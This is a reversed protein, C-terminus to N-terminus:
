ESKLLDQMHKWEEISTAESHDISQRVLASLTSAGLEYFEHSYDALRLLTQYWQVSSSLQKIMQEQIQVGSHYIQADVNLAIPIRPDKFVTNQIAQNLGQSASDMLPSHFAGAVKLPIGRGIKAERLYSQVRNLIELGGSLVLQQPSNINAIWIPYEQCLAQIAHVDARVVALMGGANEECADQMLQARLTVLRLADEFDLVGAVVLATYEGLSHGAVASPPDGGCSQWVQYMGTQVCFLAPQAILTQTLQEPSGSQIIQRLDFGLIEHALEWHQQYVPHLHFSEGMGIKQSGQGPFIMLPTSSM